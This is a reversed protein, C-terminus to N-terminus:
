LSIYQMWRVFGVVLEVPDILSQISDGRVRFISIEGISMGEQERFLYPFRREAANTKRM